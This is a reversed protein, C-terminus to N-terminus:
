LSRRGRSRRHGRCRCGSVGCARGEAPCVLRSRGYVRTEWPRLMTTGARVVDAYNCLLLMAECWESSDPVEAPVPESSFSGLVLLYVEGLQRNFAYVHPDDPLLMTYDGHVVTPQLSSPDILRRYPPVGLRPRCAIRRRQSERYNPNVALWSDPRIVVALALPPLPM